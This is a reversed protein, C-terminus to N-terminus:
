GTLGDDVLAGTGDIVVRGGHEALVAIASALEDPLERLEGPDENKVILTETANNSDRDAFVFDIPRSSWVGALVGDEILVVVRIDAHGM